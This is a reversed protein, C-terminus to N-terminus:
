RGDLFKEAQRRLGAPALEWAPTLMLERLKVQRVDRPADARVGLHPWVLDLDDPLAWHARFASEATRTPEAYPILVEDATAAPQIEVLQLGLHDIAARFATRQGEVFSASPADGTTKFLTFVWADDDIGTLDLVLELGQEDTLTRHALSGETAPGQTRPGDTLGFTERLWALQDESLEGISLARLVPWLM